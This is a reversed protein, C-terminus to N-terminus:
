SNVRVGDMLNVFGIWQYWLNVRVGDNFKFVRDILKM